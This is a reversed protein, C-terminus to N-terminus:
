CKRFPQGVAEGGIAYLKGNLFSCVVAARAVSMPVSLEGFTLPDYRESHKELVQIM